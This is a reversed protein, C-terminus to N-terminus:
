EVKHWSPDPDFAKIARAISATKKGLDKEYVAGDHNVIFTMIGSNGYEAPYAVLAFGGILHGKVLYNRAGGSANTGQEKLIRYFYGHYPVPSGSRQKGAYGERSAKAALPGLPSPEEGEKAYWYLGDKHGETSVLKQAYERIGDGDRDKAAYEVEADVIALCVQMANLENKGIRRNLIEDKGESTNFYWSDARKVIPVPFPWDERGVHLVMRYEDKKELQNMEEFAKAFRERSAQDAVEDGSSILVKGAPGFIALLESTDNAKIATILAKVAEEPSGFQKQKAAAALASGPCFVVAGALIAALGIIFADLLVNKATKRHVSFM